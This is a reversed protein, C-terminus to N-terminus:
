LVVRLAADKRATPEDAPKITAVVVGQARRRGVPAFIGRPAPPESRACAARVGSITRAPGCKRLFRSTM